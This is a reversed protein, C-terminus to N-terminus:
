SQMPSILTKLVPHVYFQKEFTTLNYYSKPLILLVFIIYLCSYKQSLHIIDNPNDSVFISLDTQLEFLANM